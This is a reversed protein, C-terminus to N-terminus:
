NGFWKSHCSQAPASVGFFSRRTRLIQPHMRAGTTGWTRSILRDQRNTPDSIRVGKEYHSKGQQQPGRRCRALNRSKSCRVLEAVAIQPGTSDARLGESTRHSVANCSHVLPRSIEHGMCTFRLGLFLRLGREPPLCSGNEPQVQSDRSAQPGAERDPKRSTQPLVM